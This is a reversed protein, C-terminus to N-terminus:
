KAERLKWPFDSVVSLTPPKILLVTKTPGTRALTRVAQSRFGLMSLLLRLSCQGSVPTAEHLQTGKQIYLWWGIPFGADQKSNSRAAANLDQHGYPDPQTDLWVKTRGPDLNPPREAMTVAHIRPFYDM